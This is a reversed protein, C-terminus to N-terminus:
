QAPSARHVYRGALREKIEPDAQELLAQKYFAQAEEIFALSPTIERGEGDFMAGNGTYAIPGVIEARDQAWVPACSLIWGIIAM